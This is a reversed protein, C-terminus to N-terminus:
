QVCGSLKAQGCHRGSLMNGLSGDIRSLTIRWLSGREPLLTTEKALQANLGTRDHAFGAEAFAALSERVLKGEIRV